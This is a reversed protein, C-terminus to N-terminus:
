GGPRRDLTAVSRLRSLPAPFSPFLPPKRGRTACSAGPLFVTWFVLSSLAGAVFTQGAKGLGVEERGGGAATVTTMTTPARRGGWVREQARLLVEYTGFMLGMGARCVATWPLARYVGRFLGGQSYAARLTDYPGLRVAPDVAAAAPIPARPPSPRPVTSSLYRPGGSGCPRLGHAAQAHLPLTTSSSSSSSTAVSSPTFFGTAFISASPGGGGGGNNACPLHVIPQYSRLHPYALRRSRAAAAATSTAM